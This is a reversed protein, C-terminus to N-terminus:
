IFFLFTFANDVEEGKKLKNEIKMQAKKKYKNRYSMNYVLISTYRTQKITSNLLSCFNQSFQETFIQAVKKGRAMPLNEEKEDKLSCSCSFM